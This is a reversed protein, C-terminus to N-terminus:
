SEDAASRPHPVPQECAIEVREPAHRYEASRDGAHAAADLQLSVLSAVECSMRWSRKGLRPDRRVEVRQVRTMLMAVRHRCVVVQMRATMEDEIEDRRAIREPGGCDDLVPLRAVPAPVDGLADGPSRGLPRQEELDQKALRRRGGRAQLQM